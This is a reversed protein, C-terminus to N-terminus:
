GMWVSRGSSVECVASRERRGSSKGHQDSERVRRDGARLPTPSESDAWDGRCPRVDHLVLRLRVSSDGSGRLVSVNKWPIGNGVGRGSRVTRVEKPRMNMDFFDLNTVYDNYYMTNM